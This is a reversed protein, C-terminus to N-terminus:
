TKTNKKNLILPGWMPSMRPFMLFSIVSTHSFTQTGCIWPLLSNMFLKWSFFYQLIYYETFASNHLSIHFGVHPHSLGPTPNVPRGSVSFVSVITVVLLNQLITIVIYVNLVWTISSFIIKFRICSSIPNVSMALPFHWFRIYICYAVQLSRSIPQNFIWAGLSPLPMRNTAQTSFLLSILTYKWPWLVLLTIGRNQNSFFQPFYKIVCIM